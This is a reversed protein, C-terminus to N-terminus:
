KSHEAATTDAESLTCLWVDVVYNSVDNTAQTVMGRGDAALALLTKGRHLAETDFSAASAPHTRLRHWM